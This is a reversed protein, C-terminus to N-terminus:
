KLDGTITMVGDQITISTIRIGTAVPGISGTFAEKVMSTILNTLGSPVPLPGFDASSFEIMLSGDEDIRATLIIAVTAQFYGQTATGYIQITGDRLYVQPNTIFPDTQEELQLAIYSSMQTENISIVMQGTFAGQTLAQEYSSQLTGVSDTSITIQQDPYDPGGVFITCSLSVLIIMSLIIIVLHKHKGM